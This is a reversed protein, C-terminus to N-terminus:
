AIISEMFSFSETFNQKKILQIVLCHFEWYSYAFMEQAKVRFLM